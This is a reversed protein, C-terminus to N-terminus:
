RQNIDNQSASQIAANRKMPSTRAKKDNVVSLLFAANTSPSKRRETFVGKVAKQLGLETEFESRNPARSMLSSVSMAGVQGESFEMPFLAERPLMEALCM